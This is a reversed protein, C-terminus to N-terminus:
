GPSGAACGEKAQALRSGESEPIITRGNADGDREFVVPLEGENILTVTWPTTLMKIVAERPGPSKEMFRVVIVCKGRKIKTISIEYGGSPKLGAFAAVAIQGERWTDPADRGISKWLEEWGAARRVVRAEFSAITSQHGQWSRSEAGQAIAAVLLSVVLLPAGLFRM